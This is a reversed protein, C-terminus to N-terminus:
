VKLKYPLKSVAMSLKLKNLKIYFRTYGTIMGLLNPKIFLKLFGYLFNALAIGAEKNETKSM